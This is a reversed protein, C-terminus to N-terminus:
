GLGQAVSCYTPVIRKLVDMTMTTSADHHQNRKSVQAVEAAVMGRWRGFHSILVCLLM